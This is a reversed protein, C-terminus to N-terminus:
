NQRLSTHPILFRILEAIEEWCIIKSVFSGPQLYYLLTQRFNLSEPYHIYFMVMIWSEQSETSHMRTMGRLQAVCSVASGSAGFIRRIIGSGAAQPPRVLPCSPCLVHVFGQASTMEITCYFSSIVNKEPNVGFVVDTKDNWIM